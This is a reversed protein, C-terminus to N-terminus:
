AYKHRIKAQAVSAIVINNDYMLVSPTHCLNRRGWSTVIIITHPRTGSVSTNTWFALLRGYRLM